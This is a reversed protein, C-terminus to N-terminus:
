EELLVEAIHHPFILSGAIQEGIRRAHAWRM